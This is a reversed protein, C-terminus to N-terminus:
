DKKNKLNKIINKLELLTIERFKFKEETMNIHNIYQVNDISDRIVNISDVFYENFHSAVQKNDKHEGDSFIVSKIVNQEKKMVLNKITTWMQKQDKTNNIQDNTYNFKANEIAVKYKNRIETYNKWAEITNEYKAKDHMIIKNQKMRNLDDTFWQDSVDKEKVTIIKSFKRVTEEYCSDLYKANDNIDKGGDYKLIANLERNFPGPMYKFIEVQKNCKTKKKDCKIMINIVEHDSVNLASNMEVSVKYSNTIVYDIITKSLNTIRTFQNVIQRLGNDHMLSQVKMKYFSNKSWDINFDGMILIDCNKESLVELTEQFAVCFEAESGSPSRYVACMLIINNECQAECVLIWYNSKVVKEYLRKVTWEQKYYIIVGGTRASNSYSIIQNYNVLSIENEQIDETLHTESM